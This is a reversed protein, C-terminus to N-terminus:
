KSLYAKEKYSNTIYEYHQLLTALVSGSALNVETLSQVKYM